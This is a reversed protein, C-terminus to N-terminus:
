QPDDRGGARLLRALAVVSTVGLKRTIRSRHIKVTTEAIGLEGGIQKNLRGTVVLRLVSAERPSLRALLERAREVEQRRALERRSRVLGERVAPILSAERVPKPLFDVAGSKMARVSMPIDGHGSIFVIQLLTGRAALERQLALGDLGPLRVDLVLCAPERSPAAALLEEASGFTEVRYGNATLLRALSRRLAPEDDIVLVLDGGGTM